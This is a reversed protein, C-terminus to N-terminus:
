NIICLTVSDEINVQVKPEGYKFTELYANEIVNEAAIIIQDKKYELKM